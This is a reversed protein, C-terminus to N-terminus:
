EGKRRRLWKNWIGIAIFALNVAGYTGLVKYNPPTEVVPGHSHGSEHKSEKNMDMDEHGGGSDHNMGEMDTGGSHDMGEMNSGNGHNMDAHDESAKQQSGTNGNKFNEEAMKINQDHSHGEDAFARSDFSFIFACSFLILFVKKM